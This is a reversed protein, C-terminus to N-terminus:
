TDEHPTDMPTPEEPTGMSMREEEPTGMSMRGEEPTGMSMRGEEPTGMSTSEEDPTGMSMPEEHSMIAGETSTGAHEDPVWPQRWTGGTQAPGTEGHGLAALGALDVCTVHGKVFVMLVSGCTRCRVVTGPARQYVVLEAVPRSAGCTSCTSDATTMEAGFVDILLGGIANGDVPDM